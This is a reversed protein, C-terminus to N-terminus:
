GPELLKRRCRAMRRRAGKISNKHAGAPTIGAADISQSKGRLQQLVVAPLAAAAPSTPMPSSGRTGPHRERSSSINSAASNGVPSCSRRQSSCSNLADGKINLSGCPILNSDYRVCGTSKPCFVQAAANLKSAKLAITVSADGVATATNLAKEPLSALLEEPQQQRGLLEVPWQSSSGPSTVVFSDKREADKGLAARERILELHKLRCVCPWAQPLTLVQGVFRCGLSSSTDSGSMYMLHCQVRSQQLNFQPERGLKCIKCDVVPGHKM